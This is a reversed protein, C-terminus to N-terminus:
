DPGRIRIRLGFGSRPPCFHGVFMSFNIFKMNQLEPHERRQLDKETAYVDKKSVKHNKICFINKKTLSYIKKFKQDDFGPDTNLRFHKIQIRISHILIRFVSLIRMFLNKSRRV